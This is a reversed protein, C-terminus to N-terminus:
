ELSVKEGWNGRIAPGQILQIQTGNCKREVKLTISYKPMLSVVLHFKSLKRLSLSSQNPQKEKEATLYADLCKTRHEFSSICDGFQDHITAFKLCMILQM